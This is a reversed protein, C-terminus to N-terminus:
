FVKNAYNFIDFTSKCHQLVNPADNKVELNKFILKKM